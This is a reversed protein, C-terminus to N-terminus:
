TRLTARSDAIAEATKPDAGYIRAHIYRGTWDSRSKPVMGPHPDRDSAFQATAEACLKALYTPTLQACSVSCGTASNPDKQTLPSIRRALNARHRFIARRVLRAYEKWHIWVSLVFATIIELRCAAELTAGIAETM